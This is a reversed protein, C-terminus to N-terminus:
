GGQIDFPEILVAKGEFSIASDRVIVFLRLVMFLRTNTNENPGEVSM